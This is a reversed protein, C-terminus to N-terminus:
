QGDEAHNRQPALVGEEALQPEIEIQKILLRPLHGDEPQRSEAADDKLRNATPTTPM